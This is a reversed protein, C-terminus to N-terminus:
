EGKKKAIITLYTFLIGGAAFFAVHLFKEQKFFDIGLYTMIGIFLVLKIGKESSYNKIIKPLIYYVLLFALALLALILIWNNELKQLNM